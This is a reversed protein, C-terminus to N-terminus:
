RKIGQQQRHNQETEIEITPSRKKFDMKNQKTKQNVQM